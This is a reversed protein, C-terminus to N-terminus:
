DGIANVVLDCTRVLEEIIAPQAATTATPKEQWHTGALHFRQSLHERVRLLLLDGNAKSNWLFGLVKDKLDHARPALAGKKVKSKATPDLVAITKKDM